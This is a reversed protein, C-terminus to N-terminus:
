VNEMKWRFWEMDDNTTIKINQREGSVIHVPHGIQEVFWADDTGLVCDKSCNIVREYAELLINRRFVQPTQALWITDRDLTTCVRNNRVNKVTDTASIAAIAADTEMATKIVRNVLNPSIMPRAGDHVLVWACTNDVMQLAKWVTEYREAGGSIFRIKMNLCSLYPEIYSYYEDFKEAPLPIIHESIGECKAIAEITWVLLPKGLIEMFQKPKKGGFRIGRGAAPIIAVIKKNMDKGKIYGRRAFFTSASGIMLRTRDHTTM